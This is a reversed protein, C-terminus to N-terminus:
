DGNGASEKVTFTVQIVAGASYRGGEDPFRTRPEFATSEIWGVEAVDLGNALIDARVDAAMATAKRQGEKPNDTDFTVAVLMVPLEWVERLTTSDPHLRATDTHIWLVPPRPAFRAAEGRVVTWGADINTSVVTEVADMISELITALNSM